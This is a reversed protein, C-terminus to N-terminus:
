DRSAVHGHFAVQARGEDFGPLPVLVQDLAGAVKGPLDVRFSFEDKNRWAARKTELGLFQDVLFGLIEDKGRLFKRRQREDAFPREVIDLNPHVVLVSRRRAHNQGAHRQHGLFVALLHPFARAPHAAVDSLFAFVFGGQGLGPASFLVEIVDDAGDAVLQFGM